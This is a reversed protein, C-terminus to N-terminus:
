TVLARARQAGEALAHGIRARLEDVTPPQGEPRRTDIVPGFHVGIRSFPLPVLQEDWRWTMRLSRSAAASTPVLVAGARQAIVAAGAKVRYPPGEPGDVAIMADHGRKVAAIMTVVARAWSPSQSENGELTVVKIGMRAGFQHLVLGDRNDRVMIAGRADRGFLPHYVGLNVFDHGHWGVFVIPRGERKCSLVDEIGSTRIAGPRILLRTAGALVRGAVVLRM